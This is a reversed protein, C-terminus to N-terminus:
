EEYFNVKDVGVSITIRYHKGSDNKLYISNSSLMGESTCTLDYNTTFSLGEPLVVKGKVTLDADDKFVMNKKGEVRIKGATDNKRCYYKAYSLLNSIDAIASKKQLNISIDRASKYANLGLPMLISLISLVIVLELLTFGRKKM